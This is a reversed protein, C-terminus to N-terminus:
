YTMNNSVTTLARFWILDPTLTGYLAGTSPETNTLLVPDTWKRIIAHGDCFSIGGANGHYSAPRDGWGTDNPTDMFFADNISYPNEDLMLFIKSAGAISLSASKTFIVYPSPPGMNCEQISVPAPNLWANMSMSRIRPEGGGGIPYVNNNFYTSRDAPCRYVTPNVVGPFVQGAEVWNVNTQQGAPSAGQDVRGPCWQPDEGPTPGNQNGGPQDGTNGNIPLQDRNEGIYMTWGVGLQKLNSVCKICQAQQKARALTPLLMAALIAIIAIVVLLEILTFAEDGSGETSTLLATEDSKNSM